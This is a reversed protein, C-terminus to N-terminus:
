FEIRPLRINLVEEAFEIKAWDLALGPGYNAKHNIPLASGFFTLIIKRILNNDDNHRQNHQEPTSPPLNQHAGPPRLVVM